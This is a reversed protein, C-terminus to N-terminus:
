FIENLSAFEGFYIMVAENYARAADEENKFSGLHISKGDMFIRARYRRKTKCFYVGKYKSTYGQKRRRRNRSNEKISCIRLNAKRNDLTNHNIHDVLSDKQAGAILRHMLIRERASDGPYVFTEIYFDHRDKSLHWTFDKIKGYDEDDILTYREGHKKSEIKILM